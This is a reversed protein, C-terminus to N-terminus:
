EDFDDAMFEFERTVDDLCVKYKKAYQKCAKSKSAGPIFDYGDHVAMFAHKAARLVDDYYYAM